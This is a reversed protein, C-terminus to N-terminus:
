RPDASMVIAHIRAAARAADEHEWVRVVQWGAASLAADVRRDRAVNADLKPKWYGVNSRPESGHEPCRHWFCGDVFVAVRRRTFTLDPRVRVDGVSLRLGLRYRLGMSHLLSRVALEPRTDRGRNAVM